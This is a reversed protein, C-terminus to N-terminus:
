IKKLCDILDNAVISYNHYEKACKNSAKTHALSGFIACEILDYGHYVKQALLAGIIGSLVDGSGGKSLAVTGFHNIFMKKNQAIIVNAGKLLLVIKPYKTCFREVYKIRNNQLEQIDIDATKSIKLLSIFEKPHPTLILDDSLYDLLIDQYFMDADIIKPCRIDFIQKLETDSYITGLGMGIAISTINSPIQNIDNCQMLNPELRIKENSYITSLGVGFNLAGLGALRSAGDKDGSVVLLHGFTGKHSNSKNRIPLKIDSEDLLFINTDNQYVEKSIGLNAVIIDGVSDKVSDGFLQTKLAGMTITMDAKFAIDQIIGNEDIGTSIDCAIKYSSQANLYQITEIIELSLDRKLGSGFIADVIVDFKINKIDELLSVFEVGILKARKDQLIAMDSKPPLLNLVKIHFNQNDDYLQRAVTIGDAGNNGSGVVILISTQNQFKNKIFNSISLSANEMLIDESLAYKDYCIKDLSSVEQYINQM